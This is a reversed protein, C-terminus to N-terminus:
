SKCSAIMREMHFTAEQQYLTAIINGCFASCADDVHGGFIALYCFVNQFLLDKTKQILKGEKGKNVWHM